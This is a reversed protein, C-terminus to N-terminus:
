LELYDARKVHRRDLGDFGFIVEDERKVCPYKPWYIEVPYIENSLFFNQSIQLAEQDDIDYDISRAESYFEYYGDRGSLEVYDLREILGGLNYYFYISYCASDNVEFYVTEVGLIRSLAQADERNFIAVPAIRVYQLMSWPHGKLQIVYCCPRSSIRISQNYFDKQWLSFNRIKRLGGVVSLVDTKLLIMSDISSFAGIGRKDEISVSTFDSIYQGLSKMKM